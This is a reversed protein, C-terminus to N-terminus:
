RREASFQGESLDNAERFAKLAQTADRVTDWWNDPGNIGHTWRGHKDLYHVGSVIYAGRCAQGKTMCPDIDAKASALLVTSDVKTGESRESM